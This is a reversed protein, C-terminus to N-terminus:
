RRAQQAFQQRLKQFGNQSMKSKSRIKQYIIYVLFKYIGIFINDISLISNYVLWSWITFYVNMYFIDFIFDNLLNNIKKM